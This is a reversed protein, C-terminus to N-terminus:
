PLARAAMLLALAREHLYAELNTYGAVGTVRLSVPGILHGDPDHPDLGQAREFEDSMGDGDSDLPATPPLPDIALADGFPNADRPAPDFTGRAVDALLRRDIADRPFSGANESLHRALQETPTATVAPFPHREAAAFPFTGDPFALEGAAVAERFDNCCHILQADGLDPALSHRNGALFYRTASEAPLYGVSPPGACTLDLLGFSTERAPNAQVVNGVANLHLTVPADRWGRDDFSGSSCNAFYAPAGPDHLLNHSWELEVRANTMSPNEFSVEPMRGVIRNWLNHHLTLRTLPHGRTPDGYNLLMGGFEAHDGITEALHLYQLTVDSTFSVQVAEDTANAISVRDIIGRRARHLRLGDGDAGDSLPARIRLFRVVFDEPAVAPLPCGDAECVVDGQIMLGRLTIGGPSTQGAITVEGHRLFVVADITGSVDFVITRPGVVDLAAQLSGPGSAALTTVRLVQGGRGGATNAGFGEAGPFAPLPTSPPPPTVGLAGACATLLSVAVFLAARRASRDVAPVPVEPPVVDSV